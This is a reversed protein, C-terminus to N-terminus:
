VLSKIRRELDKRNILDVVLVRDPLLKFLLRVDIGIRQRSISPCAKLRVVGVLAAPEGSAIEGITKMANRAVHRPFSALREEFKKPFEILRVPQQGLTEEPLLQAEEADRAAKEREEDFFNGSKMRLMELDTQAKQLERRLENRENHREKLENKLTDVKGRLEDLAKPDVPLAVVNQAAEEAETKKERLSLERQLQHLQEKMQRVEKAKDELKRKTEHLSDSEDVANGGKRALREEMLDTYLDDPPLNLLDRARLIERYVIEADEDNLFQLIGRAIFIGLPSLKSVLLSMAFAQLEEIDEKEAVHKGQEMLLEMMKKPDDEALLLKYGFYMEDETLEGGPTIKILRQLLDKRRFHQTWYMTRHWTDILDAGVGLKELAETATEIMRFRFLKEFYGRLLYRDILRPDFSLLDPPNCRELRAANLHM